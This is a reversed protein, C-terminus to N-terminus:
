QPINIELSTAPVTGFYKAIGGTIAKGLVTIVHKGEALGTKSGRVSFALGNVPNFANIGGTEEIQAAASPPDFGATAAAGDGAASNNLTGSISWPLDSPSTPDGTGWTVFGCEIESNVETYIISTTSHDTTFKNVCTKVGRNFWSACDRETSADSVSNGTGVYCMGVLTYHADGSWVEVGNDGTVHGSQTAALRVVQCNGGGTYTGLGSSSTNQLDLTVSDVVTATDTVNAQIAGAINVCSVLITDGGNGRSDSVTLRVKGAMNDAANSVTIDDDAVHVAYIYNLASSMTAYKTLSLCNALLQRMAGDVILGGAGGSRCLNFQSTINNWGFHVQGHTLQAANKPQEATIYIPSSFGSQTWETGDFLLSVSENDSRYYQVNSINWETIPFKYSPLTAHQGYFNVFLGPVGPEFTFECNAPPTPPM